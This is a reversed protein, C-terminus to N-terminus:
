SRVLGSLVRAERRKPSKEKHPYLCVDRLIGSFPCGATLRLAVRFTDFPRIEDSAPHCMTSATAPSELIHGLNSRRQGHKQPNALKSLPVESQTELGLIERSM